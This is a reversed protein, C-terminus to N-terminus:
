LKWIEEFLERHTQTIEKSEILFATPNESWSIILTKDCYINVSSPIPSSTFKTKIDNRGKRKSFDKKYENSFIGKSIINNYYDEIDMKAFFKDVIKVNSKDYKYFFLFEEDKVKNEFLEKYASKIGNFGLFVEANQKQEVLKKMSQIQPIIQFLENKINKLKDEEKQVILNLNSPECCNYHKINNKVVFSIIGKQTLKECADHVNSSSVSCLKIIEGVKGEGLKLLGLYVQIESNTFGVTELVKIIQNEM